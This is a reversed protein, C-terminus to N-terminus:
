GNFASLYEGTATKIKGTVITAPVSRQIIAHGHKLPEGSHFGVSAVTEPCAFEGVVDMM